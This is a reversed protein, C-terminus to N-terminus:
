VVAPKIVVGAAALRSRAQPNTGRPSAHVAGGCSAPRLDLDALQSQVLDDLSVCSHQASFQGGAAQAQMDM